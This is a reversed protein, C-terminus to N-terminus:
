RRKTPGLMCRKRSTVFFRCFKAGFTGGLKGRVGDVMEAVLLVLGLGLNTTIIDKTENGFAFYGLAGFAGFLLSIVTMGMGLVRGFKEKDKAELELPLVMGIGEFAYVAVGVGYFFVFFGDFAELAPRNKMFVSVDEVMVLSKSAIDIGDAIISM